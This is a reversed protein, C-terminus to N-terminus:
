LQVQSGFHWPELALSIGGVTLGMALVAYWRILDGTFFYATSLVLIPMTGLLMKALGLFASFIVISLKTEPVQTSEQGLKVVCQRLTSNRTGLFTTICDKCLVM